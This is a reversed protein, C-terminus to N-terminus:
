RLEKDNNITTNPVYEQCVLKKIGSFIATPQVRKGRNALATITEEDAERFVKQWAAKGKCAFSVTIVAGSLAHLGPLAAVKTSSLAQVIPKLNIVQHRQGIGIVFHVDSCLQPYRRLSLIFVDTEPSYINIKSARYSAADVAHLTMKTDAEEQSSRLHTVDRHTAQCNNEWTVVVSTARRETPHTVDWHTAQCNSEWTM